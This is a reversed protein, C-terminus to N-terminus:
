SLITQLLYHHDNRLHICVVQATMVLRHQLVQRACIAIVSVRLAARCSVQSAYDFDCDLLGALYELHANLGPVDRPDKAGLQVGEVYAPHLLMKM